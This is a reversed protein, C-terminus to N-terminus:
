LTKVGDCVISKLLLLFACIPLFNLLDSNRSYLNVERTENRSNEVREMLIAVVNKASDVEVRTQSSEHHTAQM